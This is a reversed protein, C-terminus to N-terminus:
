DSSRKGEAANKVRSPENQQLGSWEEMKEAAQSGSAKCFYIGHYPNNPFSLGHYLLLNCNIPAVQLRFLRFRLPLDGALELAIVRDPGSIYPLHHQSSSLIM